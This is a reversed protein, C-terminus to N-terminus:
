AMNDKYKNNCLFLLNKFFLYIVSDNPPIYKLPRKFFIWRNKQLSVTWMSVLQYLITNDFFFQFFDITPFYIAYVLPTVKFQLIKM